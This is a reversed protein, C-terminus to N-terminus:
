YLFDTYIGDVGMQYYKNKINNDNVTYVYVSLGKYKFFKIHSDNVYNNEIFWEPIAIVDINNYICFNAINLMNFDTFKYLTFIYNDFEYIDKIDYYMDYSYLQIIIRDLLTSDISLCYDVLEKYINIYNDSYDDEKTDIVIYLDKYKLMYDILIEMDIRSYRNYIKNNMFDDYSLIKSNDWYHNAVILFDSTYLLDVEMIKIGMSYGYELGDLSNMYDLGDIGCLAHCIYENSSFWENSGNLKNRYGFLIYLILLLIFFMIVLIISMIKVKM